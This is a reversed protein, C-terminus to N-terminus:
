CLNCRKSGNQYLRAHDIVSCYIILKEIDKRKMKRSHRPLEASNTKSEYSSPIATNMFDTKLHIRQLVTTISEM